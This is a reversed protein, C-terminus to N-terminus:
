RETNVWLQEGDTVVEVWGHQALSVWRPDGSPISANGTGAWLFLVAEFTAWDQAAHEELDDASLLIADLSILEQAFSRQLTEAPVAGPILMQFDDWEVLLATGMLNHLLIKLTAGAGLPLVQGSELWQPTVEQQQLVDLVREGARKGAADENWLVLGAPFRELTLPLGELPAASRATIVLGDLRRRFLVARKGLESSLQSASSSGNLLVRAGDPSQILVAPGDPVDLVNLHLKGDPATQVARWVVVSCLALGVLVATPRVKKLRAGVGRGLTAGFLLAYFLLVVWLPVDGLVLV